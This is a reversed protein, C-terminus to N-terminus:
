RGTDPLALIAENADRQSVVSPHDVAALCEARTEAQSTALAKEARNARQLNCAAEKQAEALELLPMVTKIHANEKRLREVEAELARERAQSALLQRERCELEECLEAYKQCALEDMKVYDLAEQALYKGILREEETVDLEPLEGKAPLKPALRERVQAILSLAFDPNTHAFYIADREDM